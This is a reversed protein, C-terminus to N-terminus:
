PFAYLSRHPRGGEPACISRYSIVGTFSTLFFRKFLTIERKNRAGRYIEKISIATTYRDERPIRSWFAKAEAVGLLYDILIDTDFILVQAMRKRTVEKGM